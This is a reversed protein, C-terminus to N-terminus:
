GAFENVVGDEANLEREKLQEQYDILESSPLMEPHETVLHDLIRDQQRQLVDLLQELDRGTIEQARQPGYRRLLIKITQQAKTAEILALPMNETNSATKSCDAAERVLRVDINSAEEMKLKMNHSSYIVATVVAVAFLVLIVLLFMNTTTTNIRSDVVRCFSGKGGWHTRMAVALTGFM